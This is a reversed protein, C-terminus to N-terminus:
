NFFGSRPIAIFAILNALTTKGLGPPGCLLIHDLAEQREKAAKVFVQLNALLERQGVMDDFGQPRVELHKESDSEIPHSSILREPATEM